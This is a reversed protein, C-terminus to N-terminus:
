ETNIPLWWFSKLLSTVHYSKLLVSSITHLIHEFYPFQKWLGPLRHCPKIITTTFELTRNQKCNISLIVTTRSIQFHQKNQRWLLYKEMKASSSLDLPELSRHTYRYTHSHASVCAHEPTPHPRTTTAIKLIGSSSQLWPHTATPHLTSPCSHTSVVPFCVHIGLQM